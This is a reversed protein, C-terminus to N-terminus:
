PQEVITLTMEQNRISSAASGRTQLVFTHSGAAPPTSTDFSFATTFPSDAPSVVVPLAYTIGSIPTGDMMVQIDATRAAGSNANALTGTYSVEIKGGLTTIPGDTCITAYSVGAVTVSAQRNKGHRHPYLWGWRTGNWIQAPGNAVSVFTPVPYTGGFAALLTVDRETTTAVPIIVRASDALRAQHTALDYIEDNTITVIKTPRVQSMLKEL